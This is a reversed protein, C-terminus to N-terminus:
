LSRSLLVLDYREGPSAQAAFAELETAQFRVRGKLHEPTNAIAHGIKDADPDIATVFAAQHVYLWTLRGDGCGIELVRLGSFDFAHEFLAASERGHPDLIVAM